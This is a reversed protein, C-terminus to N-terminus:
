RCKFNGRDSSISEKKLKPQQKMVSTEGRLKTSNSQEKRSSLGLDIPDGSITAKDGKGLSSPKSV